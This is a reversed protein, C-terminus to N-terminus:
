RRHRQHTLPSGSQGISTYQLRYKRHCCLSFTNRRRFLLQGKKMLLLNEQISKKGVTGDSRRLIVFTQIAEPLFHPDSFFLSTYPTRGCPKSRLPLLGERPATQCYKQSFFLMGCSQSTILGMRSYSFVTRTLRQVFSYILLM